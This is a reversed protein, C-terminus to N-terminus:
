TIINNSLITIISTQKVIMNNGKSVFIGKHLSQLHLFTHYNFQGFSDFRKQISILGKKALTNLIRSCSAVSLNFVKSVTKISTGHDIVKKVGGLKKYAAKVVKRSYSQLDSIKDEIYQKRKLKNKLLALYIDDKSNVNEFNKAKYESYLFHINDASKLILNQSHWHGWNEDIIVKIGRNVKSKSCNLLKPLEKVTEKYICSNAFLTKLEIFFTYEKILKHRAIYELTPYSIYM